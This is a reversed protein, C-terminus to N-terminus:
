ILLVYIFFIFFVIKSNPMSMHLGSAATWHSFGLARKRQLYNRLLSSFLGTMSKCIFVYSSVVM